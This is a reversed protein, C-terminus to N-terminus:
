CLESREHLVATVPQHLQVWRFGDLRTVIAVDIGGGVTPLERSFQQFEVTTRILFSAYDMANQLSFMGFPPYNSDGSAGYLNRIIDAVETIGGVYSGIDDHNEISVDSVGDELVSNFEVIKATQGAYGVVYGGFPDQIDSAFSNEGTWVQDDLDYAVAQAIEDVTNFCIDSAKWRNELERVAFYVSKGDISGRGWTGIGFSDYFPFIKQCNPFTKEPTSEATEQLTTISDGALVIGDRVLVSVIM